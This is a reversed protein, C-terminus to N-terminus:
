ETGITCFFDERDEMDLAAFMCQEYRDLLITQNAKHKLVLQLRQQYFNLSELQYDLEIRLCVM